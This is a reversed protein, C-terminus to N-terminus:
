SQIDDFCFGVVDSQGIVFSVSLETFCDCSSFFHSVRLAPICIRTLRKFWDRLTFCPLHSNSEMRLHFSNEVVDNM